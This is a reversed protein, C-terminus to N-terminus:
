LSRLKKIDHIQITKNLVSILGEESLKHLIRSFTEPTLNLHSAITSKTAELTVQTENADDVGDQLYQLLFGIVRQQSSDLTVSELESVLLHLRRSLGALMSCACAPNENICKFIVNTPVLLVRSATIAQVTAPSPKKLFAMAEAFTQGPGVIRAVHEKGAMSLFSIKINGQVTIYIGQCTDGTHFIFQDKALTLLCAHEAIYRLHEEGMERFLPVNRLTVYAQDATLDKGRETLKALSASILAHNVGKCGFGVIAANFIKGMATSHSVIKVKSESTKFQLDVM